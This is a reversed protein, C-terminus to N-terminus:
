CLGLVRCVTEAITREEDMRILRVPGRSTESSIVGANAVNRKEGLEITLFGLGDCIRVCVIPANEGIGGALVLTDLRGLVAAFSRDM